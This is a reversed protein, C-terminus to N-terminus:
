PPCRTTPDQGIAELRGEARIPNDASNLIPRHERLWAAVQERAPLDDSLARVRDPHVQRLIAGFGNAGAALFSNTVVRYSRRPEIASGGALTARVVRDRDAIDIKGDGDRDVTPCPDRSRDYTIALGGVQIVGHAGSTGVRVLAALVDGPVEMLAVHNGFPLVDYIAGYTVEGVGLEARLGGSNLLCVERDPYRELLVDCIFAGLPSAEDRNRTLERVVRAGLAEARLQAVEVEAPALLAEVARSRRTEGRARLPAMPEIRLRVAGDGESRRVDLVALQKAQKGAQLVAVGSVRHAAADHTHGGFIAQATGPPLAEALRFIESTGECSSLDEPDRLDTCAGGLHALVVVMDAGAQRLAAAERVVAAAPDTFALLEAVFPPTISPTELTIVGVLGVRFGGREIMVSPRLGPWDPLRGTAKDVLNASLVPFPAEAIRARLAGFPGGGGDHRPGVAGYDFEHNGLAVADYGLAGFVAVGLAGEVRDSLLTGSWMDGSDVLLVSRGADAERDLIAGLARMGTMEGGTASSAPDGLAGHVDTTQLIRLHAGASGCGVSVAAMWLAGASRWALRGGSSGM